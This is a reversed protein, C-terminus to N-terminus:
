LNVEQLYVIYPLNSSNTQNLQKTKNQVDDMMTTLLVFPACTKQGIKYLFIFYNSICIKLIYIVSLVWKFKMVREIYEELYFLENDLRFHVHRLFYNVIIDLVSLIVFTM